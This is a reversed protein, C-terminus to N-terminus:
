IGDDRRDKLCQILYVLGIDSIENNVYTIAEGEATYTALIFKDTKFERRLVEEISRYDDLKMIKAM